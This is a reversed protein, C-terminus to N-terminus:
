NELLVLVDEPPRGIAAKEGNLVLIPRELLIPQALIADILEDESANELDLDKYANEKKRIVESPLKGLAKFLGELETRTLQDELYHVTKHEIGREALLALTGRSKTCKPNHYLTYNKTM